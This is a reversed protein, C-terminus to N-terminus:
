GPRRGEVALLRRRSAVCGCLLWGTLVCVSQLLLSSRSLSHSLSKFQPLSFMGEQWVTITVIVLTIEDRKVGGLAQSLLSPTPPLPPPPPRPPPPPPLLVIRVQCILASSFSLHSDIVWSAKMKGALGRSM